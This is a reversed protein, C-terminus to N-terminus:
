DDLPAKWKPIRKCFQRTVEVDVWINWISLIDPFSWVHTCLMLYVPYCIYDNDFEGRLFDINWNTSRDLCLPKKYDDEIISKYHCHSIWYEVTRMVDDGFYAMVKEDTDGSIRPYASLRVKIEYDKIFSDKRKIRRELEAATELAEQWGKECAELLQDNILLFRAKKEETWTFDNDIRKKREQLVDKLMDELDRKPYSRAYIDMDYLAAAIAVLVPTEYGTIITSIKNHNNRHAMLLHVEKEAALKKNIKGTM